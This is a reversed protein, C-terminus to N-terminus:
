ALPGRWHVVDAARATTMCGSRNTEAIKLGSRYVQVECAVEAEVVDRGRLKLGDSRALLREESVEYYRPIQGVVPM